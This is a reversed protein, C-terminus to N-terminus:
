NVRRGIKRADIKLRDRKYEKELCRMVVCKRKRREQGRGGNGVCVM